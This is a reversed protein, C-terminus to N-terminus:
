MGGGRAQSGAFRRVFGGQTSDEKKNEQKKNKRTKKESFEKGEDQRKRTPVLAMIISSCKEMSTHVNERFASANQRLEHFKFDGSFDHLTLM